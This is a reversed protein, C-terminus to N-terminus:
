RPHACFCNAAGSGRRREVKDSEERRGIGVKRDEEGGDRKRSM